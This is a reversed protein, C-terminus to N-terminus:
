AWPRAGPAGLGAPVQKGLKRYEATVAIVVDEYRIGRGASRAIVAAAFVANRVHGGALDCHTALRNMAAADLGHATGLHAQWLRRREEPTPLPFELVSDLRRTFASDFRARSNSTLLAIGEFSEIRQLLYNTQANAFRDNSEKVDTRKGFLADAEDFLLVVDSHEARAFLQSLNKETEGIYKSTIAAADVRYLPLALQSALWGAALTKGTGSAGVFLARVGPRYRTRSSPGLDAVLGERLRCRQRLALLEARLATPLILADDEIVEPLLEALSGLSGAIGERVVQAIHARAIAPAAHLSARHRAARGIAHIGFAGARYTRALTESLDTDATHTRWLAARENADPLAIRWSGVTDGHLLFSGEPGAAILIPGYYGQMEPLKRSEGPALEACIVPVAGVLWAWAGFGEPMEQELFAATGGLKSALLACVARSERPHGSRVVLARAAHLANAQRASENRVSEALPTQEADALTIGPWYRGRSQLALVIPAPVQVCIEPLPRSAKELCLLGSRRAPGECIQTMPDPVGLRSAINTILGLTPRASALPLQLWSIVRGPLPDLEVATALALAVLEALGLQLHAALALLRVADPPPEKLWRAFTNAPNGGSRTRWERLRAAEAGSDDAHPPALASLLLEHLALRELAGTSTRPLASM